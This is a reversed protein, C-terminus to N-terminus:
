EINNYFYHMFAQRIQIADNTSRRPQNQLPLFSTNSCNRWNGARILEGSDNYTDFTGPPAYLPRSTRSKRLFNHLLVCTMTIISCKVPHFPMATKFVRFKNSLVGFTNEVVVRSQSLKQNFVREPSNLQHRGPFPKMLNKTLSFAGDCLFVYPLDIDCGPLSSPPPLNISNESKKKSISSQNFVGGDSVLIRGQAGIEAFMFCYDYDVIALLVISFTRKYNYYETGSHPPQQITVHKGDMAGLCHPFKFREAKSLWEETTTPIKVFDKLAENLALCVEPVIRSILQSSIKFLYHLSRFSDGTALYRLTLALRIKVPIAERWDTDQKAVVPSVKQILFEFDSNSMRVFNDFEGSPEALM